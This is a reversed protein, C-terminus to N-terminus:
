SAYIYIHPTRYDQPLTRPGSVIVPGLNLSRGPCLNPGLDTSSARGSVEGCSVCIIDTGTDLGSVFLPNIALHLYSPHLYCWRLFFLVVSVSQYVCDRLPNIVQLSISRYFHLCLLM